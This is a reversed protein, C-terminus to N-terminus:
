PPPSRRTTGRLRTPGSPTSAMRESSGILIDEFLMGFPWIGGGTGGDGLALPAVPPNLAKLADGVTFFEDWTTPPTLNNATFLDKNYWMENARHINVPVTYVKGDTGTIIKVVGEPFKAPDIISADLPDLVPPEIGNVYQDLLEHGM